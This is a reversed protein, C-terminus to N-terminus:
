QLKEKEDKEIEKEISQLARHAHYKMYLDHLMYLRTCTYVHGISYTTVLNGGSGLPIRCMPWALAMLKLKPYALTHSYLSCFTSYTGTRKCLVNSSPYLSRVWLGDM